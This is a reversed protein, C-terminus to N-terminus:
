LYPASLLYGYSLGTKQQAIRQLYQHTCPKRIRLELVLRFKGGKQNEWPVINEPLEPNKPIFQCGLLPRNEPDGGTPVTWYIRDNSKCLESRRSQVAM